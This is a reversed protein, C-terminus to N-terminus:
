RFYKRRVIVLGIGVASVVPILWVVSAQVDILFLSDTDIPLLKEYIVQSTSSHNFLYSSGANEAETDDQHAGVIVELKRIM